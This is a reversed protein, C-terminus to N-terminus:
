IIGFRSLMVAGRQTENDIRDDIEKSLMNWDKSDIKRKLLCLAMWYDIKKEQMTMWVLQLTEESIPNNDFFM